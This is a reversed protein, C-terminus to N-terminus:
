WPVFQTVLVDFCRRSMMRQANLQYIRFLTQTSEQVFMCILQVM